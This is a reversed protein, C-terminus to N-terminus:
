NYAKVQYVYDAVKKIQQERDLKKLSSIVPMKISQYSTDQQKLDNLMDYIEKSKVAFVVGEADTERASLIGVVEGNKNLVPGGSNGPNAPLSIQLSSTDGEHGSTASIYGSNYVIVDRPYGLTYIDVGLDFNNKTFSYPLATVPKFAKDDIKLLALDKEKDIYAITTTLDEGNKNVVVGKGQLVHANTILYGRGDILFATGGTTFNRPEAATVDSQDKKLEANLIHTQKELVTIKNSLYQIDSKTPAAPSLSKLLLSIFLATVGAISAAIAMTRKYKTWLQFVKGQKPEEAEESNSIEGREILDTHISSLTQMFNKQDAYLDMHQLFLRHEVVMQDIEPTNKRLQQFYKKEEPLMAGTLYREITDLLQRDEM